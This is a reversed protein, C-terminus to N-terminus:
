HLNVSGGTLAPLSHRTLVAPAAFPRREPVLRTSGATSDSPERGSHEGRLPLSPRERVPAAPLAAFTDSSSIMTLVTLNLQTELVITKRFSFRLNHQGSGPCRGAALM